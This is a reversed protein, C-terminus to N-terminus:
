HSFIKMVLSLNRGFAGICFRGGSELSKGPGVMRAVTADGVNRTVLTAVTLVETWDTTISV